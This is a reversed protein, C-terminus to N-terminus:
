LKSQLNNKILLRLREFQHTVLILICDETLDTNLYDSMTFKNAFFLQKGILICFSSLQNEKITFPSNCGEIFSKCIARINTSPELSYNAFIPIEKCFKDKESSSPIKNFLKQLYIAPLLYLEGFKSIKTM